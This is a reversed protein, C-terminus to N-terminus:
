LSTIAEIILSQCEDSLSVESAFRVGDYYIELVRVVGSLMLHVTFTCESNASVHEVTAM